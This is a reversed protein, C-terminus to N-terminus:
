FQLLINLPIFIIVCNTKKKGNGHGHRGSRESVDGVTGVRRVDLVTGGNVLRGDCNQVTKFSILM